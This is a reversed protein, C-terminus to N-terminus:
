GVLLGNRLNTDSIHKYLDYIVSKVSAERTRLYDQLALREARKALAPLTIEELVHELIRIPAYAEEFELLISALADSPNRNLHVHSGRVLAGSADYQNFLDLTLWETEWEKVLEEVSKLGGEYLVISRREPAPHFTNTARISLDKFDATLLPM